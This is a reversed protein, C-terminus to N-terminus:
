GGGRAARAAPLNPLGSTFRRPVATACGIVLYQPQGTDSDLSDTGAHLPHGGLRYGDATTLTIHSPTGSMAANLVGCHDHSTVLMEFPAGPLAVVCIPTCPVIQPKQPCGEDAVDDPRAARKYLKSHFDGCCEVKM